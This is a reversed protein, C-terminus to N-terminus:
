GESPPPPIFAPELMRKVDALDELNKVYARLFKFIDAYVTPAGDQIQDLLNEGLTKAPEDWTAYSDSLRPPRWEALMGADRIAALIADTLDEASPLIITVDEDPADDAVKLLAGKLAEGIVDRPDPM